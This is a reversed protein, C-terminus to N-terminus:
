SKKILTLKLEDFFVGSGDRITKSFNYVIYPGNYGTSTFISRFLPQATNLKIYKEQFIYSQLTSVLGSYIVSDGPLDKWVFEIARDDHYAEYAAPESGLCNVLSINKSDESVIQFPNIPLTYLGGGISDDSFQIRTFQSM